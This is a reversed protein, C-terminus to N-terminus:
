RAPTELTGGLAFRFLDALLQRTFVVSEAGLFVIQPMPSPAINQSDACCFSRIASIVILILSRNAISEGFSM